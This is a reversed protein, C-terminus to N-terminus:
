KGSKELWDIVADIEWRKEPAKQKLAKFFLVAEEKKNEEAMAQALSGYSFVFTPDITLVEKFLEIAEPKKGSVLFIRALNHRPPASEKKPDLRIAEQYAGAAKELQGLDAYAMGLNNWVRLSQRNYQLVNEYFIVPSKWTKNRQFTLFGFLSAVLFLGVFGTKKLWLPLDFRFFLARIELGLWLFFGALPFYLYHEYMIGSSVAPIGSSSLLSFLFWGLALSVLPNKQIQGFFRWFFLVLFSFGLLVPFSFFTKKIEALREMHLGSPWFILRLYDPFIGLFTWTRVLLSDAYLNPGDYLNFTNQFNLSAARLIVYFIGVLFMPWFKKIIKEILLRAKLFLSETLNESFIFFAELLILLIPFIILAKEKTMLALGFFIWLPWHINKARNKIQFLLAWFVFVASLPDALGSVYTVAETQLPHLLFFLAPFFALRKNKTLLFFIEFLLWGALLHVLLSILHFGAPWLGWIKWGFSFVILLVPRWYNSSLGAGAILNESFYNRFYQWDKVYVNNVIGDNDDWFLQNGLANFYTAFGLFILLLALNKKNWFAPM